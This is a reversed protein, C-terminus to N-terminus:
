YQEVEMGTIMWASAEKKLELVISASGFAAKLDIPAVKAVGKEIVTKAKATDFQANDLYGMSIADKLFSKLGAKDGYEYNKFSDSYLLLVKDLDKAVAAAKWDAVAKAVLDQDTPGKAAGGQCGCVVVALFGVALMMAVSKKM